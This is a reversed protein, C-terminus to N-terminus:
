RGGRQREGGRDGREAVGREREGGRDGRKAVGREGGRDGREAVTSDNLSYMASISVYNSVWGTGVTNKEDLHEWFTKEAGM